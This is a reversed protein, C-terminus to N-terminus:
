TTKGKRRMAGILFLLGGAGIAINGIANLTADKVVYGAVIGFGAVILGIIMLTNVKSNAM